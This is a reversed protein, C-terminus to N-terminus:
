TFMDMEQSNGKGETDTVMRARWLEMVRWVVIFGGKVKSNFLTQM